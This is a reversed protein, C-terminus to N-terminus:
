ARAVLDEGGQPAAHSTIGLLVRLPHIAAEGNGKPVLDSTSERGEIIM